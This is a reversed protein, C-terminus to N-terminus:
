YSYLRRYDASWLMATEDHAKLDAEAKFFAQQKEEVKLKLREVPSINSFRVANTFKDHAKRRKEESKKQNNGGNAVSFSAAACQGALNYLINQVAPTNHTFLQDNPNGNEEKYADIADTLDWVDMNAIVSITKDLTKTGYEKEIQSLTAEITDHLSAASHPSESSLTATTKIPATHEGAM